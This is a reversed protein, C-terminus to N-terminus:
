TALLEEDAVERVHRAPNGFAVSRPAVDRTVVSGAGV